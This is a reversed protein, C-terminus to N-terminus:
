TADPPVVLIHKALVTGADVRSQVFVEVGVKLDGLDGDERGVYVITRDDVSVTEAGGGAESIVLSGGGISRVTGHDLQLHVLQGDRGTVTAVVHVLHRGFRLLRAGPKGVRLDGNPRTPTGSADPALTSDATVINAAPAGSETAAAAFGIGAVGLITIAGGTLVLRWTPIRM